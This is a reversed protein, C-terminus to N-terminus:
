FSEAAARAARPVRFCWRVLQVTYNCAEGKGASDPRDRPTRAIGRPPKLDDQTATSRVRDPAFPPTAASERTCATSGGLPFPTAPVAQEELM